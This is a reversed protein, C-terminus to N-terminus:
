GMRSASGGGAVPFISPVDFLQKNPYGDSVRPCNPNPGIPSADASIVGELVWTQGAMGWLVEGCRPTVTNDIYCGVGEM